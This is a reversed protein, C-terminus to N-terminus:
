KISRLVLKDKLITSQELCVIKKGPDILIGPHFNYCRYELSKLFSKNLIISSFISLIKIKKNLNLIEKNKKLNNEQIYFM